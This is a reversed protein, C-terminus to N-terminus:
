APGYRTLRSGGTNIGQGATSGGFEVALAITNGGTFAVGTLVNSALPVGSSSLLHGGSVTLDALSGSLSLRCTTGSVVAATLIMTGGITDGSSGAAAGVVALATYTGAIDASVTMLQAGWTGGFPVKLEYITGAPAGPLTPYAATILTQSTVNGTAISSTDTLTFDPSAPGSLLALLYLELASAV